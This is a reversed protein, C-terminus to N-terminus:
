NDKPYHAPNHVAANDPIPLHQPELTIKKILGMKMADGLTWNGKLRIVVEGKNNVFPIWQSDKKKDKM